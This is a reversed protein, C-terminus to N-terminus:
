GVPQAETLRITADKSGQVSILSTRWNICSYYAVHNMRYQPTINLAELRRHNVQCPTLSSGNGTTGTWGLQSFTFWTFLLSLM